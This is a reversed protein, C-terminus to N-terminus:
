SPYCSFKPDEVGAIARGEDVVAQGVEHDTAESDNIQCGYETHYGTYREGQQPM